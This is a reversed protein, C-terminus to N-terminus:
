RRLGQLLERTPSRLDLARPRLLRVSTIEAVAFAERIVIVDLLDEQLRDFLGRSMDVEPEIVITPYNKRLSAVLRAILNAGFARHRRAQPAPCARCNTNVSSVSGRRGLRLRNQNKTGDIELTIIAATM